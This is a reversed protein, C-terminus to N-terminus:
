VWRGDPRYECPIGGFKAVYKEVPTGLEEGKDNTAHFVSASMGVAAFLDIIGGARFRERNSQRAAERAANESTLMELVDLM